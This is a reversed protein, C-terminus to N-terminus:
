PVANSTMPGSAASAVPERAAAGTMRVIDSWNEASESFQDPRGSEFIAPNKMSNPVPSQPLVERIGRLEAKLEAIEAAQKYVFEELLRFSKDSPMQPPNDKRATEETSCTLDPISALCSM